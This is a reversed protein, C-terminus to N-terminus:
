DDRSVRAPRNFATDVIVVLTEGAARSAAVALVEAPHGGWRTESGGFFDSFSVALEEVRSSRTGFEVRRERGRGGAESAGLGHARRLGLAHPEQRRRAAGRARLGRRAGGASE